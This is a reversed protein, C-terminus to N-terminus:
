SSDQSSLIFLAAASASVRVKVEDTAKACPPPPLLPPKVPPAALEDAPGVLAAPEGRAPDAPAPVVPTIAHRWSRGVSGAQIIRPIIRTTTSVPGVEIVIGSGADGIWRGVRRARPARSVRLVSPRIVAACLGRAVNRSPIACQSGITGAHWAM